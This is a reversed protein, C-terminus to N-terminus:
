REARAMQGAAILTSIRLLPHDIRIVQLMGTVTSVLLSGSQYGLVAPHNLTMPTTPPTISWTPGMTPGDASALVFTDLHCICDTALDGLIVCLVTTQTTRYLVGHVFKLGTVSVNKERPAGLDVNGLLVFESDRSLYIAVLRQVVLACLIGEEDWQVFDPGPLTPGAQVFNSAAMEAMGCKLTYFHAAGDNPGNVKSAVCLNSGSILDTAV